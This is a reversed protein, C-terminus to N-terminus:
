EVRRDEEAAALLRALDERIQPLRDFRFLVRDHLGPRRIAPTRRGYRQGIRDVVSRQSRLGPLTKRTNKVADLTRDGSTPLSATGLRDAADSQISLTRQVLFDPAFM